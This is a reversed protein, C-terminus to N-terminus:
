TMGEKLTCVKKKLDAMEDDDTDSIVKEECVSKNRKIKEELEIKETHLTQLEREIRKKETSINKFKKNQETICDSFFLLLSLNNLCFYHSSIERLVVSLVVADTM